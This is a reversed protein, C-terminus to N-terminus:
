EIDEEITTSRKINGDGDRAVTTESKRKPLSVKVEAPQVENHIAVNPSQVEVNVPTPEVNNQVNVVPAPMEINPAEVHVDVRPAPTEIANHITAAPLHNTVNITPAAPAPAPAQARANVAAEMRAFAQLLSNQVPEEDDQANPDDQTPEPIPKGNADLRGTPDDFLGMEKARELDAAREADVVEPDDGREAIVSSRSRFGAKVELEKGQPDQVPHIHAWGHPSWEARRVDDFEDLSIQGALLASEAFWRMVKVCMMPIIHQWQYQEALRRFENIIVRLTRDSVDKIDGSFLEYPMGAAAATGLHQTRMYDSYTTGAEPPNSWQVEQGDDLEQLLGPQLGVLQRDNEDTAEELGSLANIDEDGVLKPLKKVLFGVFMNALKQRTMVSDDFDEVDRLRTLVSTIMPVGRLQGPRFPKYLHAIESAAVRVLTGAVPSTSAQIDGPHQKHFWYAVRKGRKNLEIGRRIVHNKPLGEYTEADFLPCMEAELLQVQMPVPLDEGLERNRRRIFVEGGDFWSRVALTQQGYFDLVCDADSSAVFDAWIDTVEQRRAGALRKFRPTIAVGILNTEWKQLFSAGSWDNRSTDRARNRITTLGSLVANPGAGGPNWGAIRKGFGGANYRASFKRVEKGQPTTVTPEALVGAVARAIRTEMSAPRGPRKEM